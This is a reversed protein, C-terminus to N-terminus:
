YGVPMFVMTRDHFGFRYNTAQGAKIEVSTEVPSAGCNRNPSARLLYRGDTVHLVLKEGINLPAIQERDLTILPICTSGRMGSDRSIILVGTNEGPARYNETRWLSEKVPMPNLTPVTNGVCGSLIAVAFFVVLIKM